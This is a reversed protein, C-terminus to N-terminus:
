CPTTSCEKHNWGFFNAPCCQQGKPCDVDFHCAEAAFCGQDVCFTSSIAGSPLCCHGKGHNCDEPGDCTVIFSDSGCGSQSPRCEEGPTNESVCCVEDGFCIGWGCLIGGFPIDTDSDSDADTDSDSDADSDADTDSDSDADSDADSDSDSDADSDADTDADTDSDSDTDSDTDTDADTDTDTDTDSDTDADADTGADFELSAPDVKNCGSVLVLFFGSLLLHQFM